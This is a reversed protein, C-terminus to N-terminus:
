FYVTCVFNRRDGRLMTQWKVLVSIATLYVHMAWTSRIGGRQERSCHWLTKVADDAPHTRIAGLEIRCSPPSTTLTWTYAAVVEWGDSEARRRQRVQIETRSRPTNMSLSMPAAVRTKTVSSQQAEGAGDGEDIRWRRSSRSEPPTAQASLVQSRFSRGPWAEQKGVAAGGTQEWREPEDPIEVVDNRGQLEASAADVVVHQSWPPQWPTEPAVHDRVVMDSDAPEHRRGAWNNSVETLMTVGVARAVM